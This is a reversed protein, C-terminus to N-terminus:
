QVPVCAVQGPYLMPRETSSTVDHVCDQALFCPVLVMDKRQCKAIKCVVQIKKHQQIRDRM